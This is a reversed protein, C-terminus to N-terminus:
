GIWRAVEVLKRVKDEDSRIVHAYTRMLAQIDDGIREAVCAPSVGASLLVSAHHHRLSHWTM